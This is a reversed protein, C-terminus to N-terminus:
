YYYPASFSDFISGIVSGIIIVYVISLVIGVCFGYLAGKGASRARLPTKDNWILYLILGVIPIFFGLVAYGMNPADDNQTRVAANRDVDCGCYPCVVAADLLEKGCHSCFKM